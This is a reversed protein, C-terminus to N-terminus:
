SETKRKLRWLEVIAARSDTRSQHVNAEFDWAKSAATLEQAHAAGKPFFLVTDQHCHPYAYDCLSSLDALARASIVDAAQLPVAEVRQNLVRVNLGLTRTAETLFVCKRADSEVLTITKVRGSDNGIIAVVLGPLGGGSGFDLWHTVAPPAHVLLQASDAIHRQWIDPQTSKAILNIRRNWKELLDVYISLRETTERSVSLGELLVPIAM